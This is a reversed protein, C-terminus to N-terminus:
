QPFDCEELHGGSVISSSTRDSFPRLFYVPNESSTVQTPLLWHTKWPVQAPALVVYPAWPRSKKHRKTVAAMM